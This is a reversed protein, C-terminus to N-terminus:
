LKRYAGIVFGKIRVEIDDDDERGLHIPGNYKRNTSRPWLEPGNGNSRVEKITTEILGGQHRLREVVVLDGEELAKGCEVDVCHAYEGDQIVENVSDGKVQVAWQRHSAYKPDPVVPISEEEGAWLEDAELWMGAQVLGVVPISGTEIFPQSATSSKASDDGYLIWSPTVGLARAYRQAQKPRIGRMGNVHARVTVPSIGVREALAVYTAYGKANMAERLRDAPEKM